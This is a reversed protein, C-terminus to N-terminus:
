NGDGRKKSFQHSRRDFSRGRNQSDQGFNSSFRYFPNQNDNWQGSGLSPGRNKNYDQTFTVRKGAISEKKIEM